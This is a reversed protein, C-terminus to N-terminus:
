IFGRFVGVDVGGDRGEFGAEFCGRVLGISLLAFYEFLSDFGLSTMAPTEAFTKAILGTASRRGVNRSNKWEVMIVTYSIAAICMEEDREPASFVHTKAM